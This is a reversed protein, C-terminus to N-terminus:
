CAHTETEPFVGCKGCTQAAMSEGMAIVGDIYIDGGEV